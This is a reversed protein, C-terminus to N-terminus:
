KSLSRGQKARNYLTEIEIEELARKYLSADDIFGKAPYRERKRRPHACGIYWKHKDEYTRAKANPKIKKEGQLEGDVYIKVIGKDRDVLGVVHYYQGKTYQKESTVTINKGKALQHIIEFKRDKNFFIGTHWGNRVIISQKSINKFKKNPSPHQTPKYSACLTYSFNNLTDLDKNTVLQICANKGNLKLASGEIGENAKLSTNMCLAYPKKGASNKLYYDKVVKTKKKKRGYKVVRKHVKISGPEFNYIAVADDPIEIDCKIQMELKKFLDEVLSLQSTEGASKLKKKAAKLARRLTGYNKRVDNKYVRDAIKSMKTFKKRNTECKKHYVAVQKLIDKRNLHKKFDFKKGAELEQIADDIKVQLKRNDKKEAIEKQRRLYGILGKAALKDTKKKAERLEETKDDRKKTIKKRKKEYAEVPEKILMFQTKCYRLLGTKKDDESVKSSKDTKSTDTPMDEAYAFIGILAFSAVACFKILNILKYSAHKKTTKM